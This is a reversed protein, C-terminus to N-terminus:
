DEFVKSAKFLEELVAEEEWKSVLESPKFGKTHAIAAVRGQNLFLTDPEILAIPDKYADETSVFKWGKARIYNVLEDVYLAALDNEHLLLVHKPSRGLVQIAINDYFEIGKWLTEVYVKKLNDFNVKRGDRVGDQFLKNMYWDSNDVTVYGNMYGNTRLWTRVEDRKEITSGERLFPFRFWHRFNAFEKLELHAENIEAIFAQAETSNLDPHSASHNAIFHGAKAYAELRRRGATTLTRTNCFFTSSIVNARELAKILASTRQDGTNYSEDGRPADDFSLAIEKAVGASCINLLSVILVATRM